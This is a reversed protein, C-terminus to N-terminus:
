AMPLWVIAWRRKATRSSRMLGVKMVAVMPYPAVIMPMPM